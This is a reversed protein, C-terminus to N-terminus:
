SIAGETEIPRVVHITVLILVFALVHFTSVLAFVLGYGFGADLMRGAVQNFVVGGMAGGFGVLGAVSGVVRRPFIDAPLIMVLTSWSQQGFFAISFLLISWEVPVQTVFLILPMVAASAGLAVKRSFNLSHGRQLLRSSFWGGLLSGLGSAAYPIWAFYGVQKTDFGRADYLYKPLWFLYFYWAADSLFKGLVLGWVQPFSFLSFWSVAPKAQPSSVFVEAIEDRERPSLKPHQAPTYYDRLWWITWFLGAAGSLFFVWRWHSFRIVAAIAPAAMVAGVATGANIMGMATSRERVPFWESVAKTAAPFGGGEGVGLLFRSIALMWFGTALGHSACALSWFVMILFFGRRTELMDILKGGGAYMIAYAFLFASNLNSFQTNTLPIDLQIAAIAM